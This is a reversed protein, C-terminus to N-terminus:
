SPISTVTSSADKYEKPGEFYLHFDEEIEEELENRGLQQRELQQLQRRSLIPSLSSSLSSSSITTTPIELLSLTEISPSLSSSSVTTAPIEKLMSSTVTEFSPSSSSSSVTTAPIEELMSSTVTEFSPSLLSSLSSSPPLSSSSPFRSLQRKRSLPLFSSSSLSSTKGIKNQAINSEESDSITIIEDSQNQKLAPTPPPPPPSASSSSSEGGENRSKITDSDSLTIIPILSIDCNLYNQAM